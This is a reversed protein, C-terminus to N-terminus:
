NKSKVSNVIDKVLNYIDDFFYHISFFIEWIKKWTQIDFLELVELQNFHYNPDYRAIVKSWDVFEKEEAHALYNRIIRVSEYLKDYSKLLKTNIHKRIIDLTFKANIFFVLIMSSRIDRNNTEITSSFNDDFSKISYSLARLASPYTDRTIHPKDFGSDDNEKIDSRIISIFDAILLDFQDYTIHNQKSNSELKKKDELDNSYQISYYM